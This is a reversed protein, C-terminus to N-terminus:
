RALGAVTAADANEIFVGTVGVFLDNRRDQQASLSGSLPPFCYTRRLEIGLEASDHVLKNVVLWEVVPYTLHICDPLRESASRGTM